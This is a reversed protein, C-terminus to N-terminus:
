GEDTPELILHNLLECCRKFPSPARSDKELFVRVAVDGVILTLRGDPDNKPSAYMDVSHIPGKEDYSYRRTFPNENLEFVLDSSFGWRRMSIAYKKIPFVIAGNEVRLKDDDLVGCAVHWVNNWWDRSDGPGGKRSMTIMPRVYTFLALEKVNGALMANVTKLRAVLDANDLQKTAQIALDQEPDGTTAKGAAIQKITTTILSSKQNELALLHEEAAKIERDIREVEPKINVSQVM